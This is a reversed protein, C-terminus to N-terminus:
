PQTSPQAFDKLPIELLYSVLKYFMALRRATRRNIHLPKWGLETSYVPPQVWTETTTIQPSALQKDKFGELASCKKLSHQDLAATAGIMKSYLYDKAGDM